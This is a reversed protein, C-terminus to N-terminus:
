NPLDILVVDSNEKSRDFVIAKGDATIDFTGIAGHNGLHTLRRPQRTQFDFLWFDLSPIFPLYVLGSGDPLFRYGGPRARVAPWEVPSGDPRVALLEVQGTFFRGAYLILDGKPSWIPNGARGSALRFVGDHEVDVKFLGPGQGDRGSVVISRGDPAWDAM